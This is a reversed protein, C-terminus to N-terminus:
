DEQTEEFIHIFVGGERGEITGLLQAEELFALRANDTLIRPRTYPDGNVAENEIMLRTPTGQDDEGALMYRASLTGPHGTLYHQTDVGGPLIDGHFMEGDGRGTFLIMNVDGRASHLTHCATIDVIITLVEKM